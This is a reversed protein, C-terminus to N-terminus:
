RMLTIKKLSKLLLFPYSQLPRVDPTKLYGSPVSHGHFVLNINKNKPWENILEAKISQLYEDKEDAKLRFLENSKELARDNANATYLLPSLLGVVSVSKIFKRRSSTQM